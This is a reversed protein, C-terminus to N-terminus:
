SFRRRDGKSRWFWNIALDEATEAVGDAKHLIKDAGSRLCEREIRSDEYGTLVWIPMAEPLSERLKAINMLGGFEWHVGTPDPMSLDVIVLDPKLEDDNLFADVSQFAACRLGHRALGKEMMRSFSRDDDLLAFQAM